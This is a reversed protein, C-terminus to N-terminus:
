LYQMTTSFFEYFVELRFIPFNFEDRQRTKKSVDSIYM